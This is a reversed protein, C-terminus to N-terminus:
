SCEYGPGCDLFQGVPPPNMQQAIIRLTLTFFRGCGAWDSERPRQMGTLIAGM